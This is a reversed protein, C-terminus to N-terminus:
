YASGSATKQSRKCPILSIVIASLVSSATATLCLATWWPSAKRVLQFLSVLDNMAPVDRLNSVSTALQHMAAAQETSISVLMTLGASSLLAVVFQAVLLAKVWRPLKEMPAISKSLFHPTQDSTAGAESERVMAEIFADIRDAYLNAEEESTCAPSVSLGHSFGLKEMELFNPTLRVCPRLEGDQLTWYISTWKSDRGISKESATSM